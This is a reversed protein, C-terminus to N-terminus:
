AAMRRPAVRQAALLASARAVAQLRLDHRQESTAKPAARRVMPGSLANLYGCLHSASGTVGCAAMALQQGLREVLIPDIEPTRRWFKWAM